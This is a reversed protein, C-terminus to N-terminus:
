GALTCEPLDVRSGIPDRELLAAITGPDQTMAFARRGDDLLCVLHGINPEGSRDYSVTYTEVVARGTYDEAIERAPLADVEAQVDHHAYRERPERASLVVAAHKTLYWGTATALGSAGPDARLREHLTALSHMVYNSGPGGAFTLGGTVTPAPHPEELEIGLETAAVQVASPFCSYIDRYAIDDVTMGTHGLLARGIARIAPSRHLEARNGVYWHDNAAATGHVFVWNERPIGAREAAAASCLVVASAQNVYINAITLKRYPFAVMRNNAPDAIEEASTGATNWAHPNTTAVEAFRAWLRAIWRQHDEVDRGAAARLANEFLPYFHVPLRLEAAEEAPHNAHKDSGLTRTPGPGDETVQGNDIQGQQLARVAECGALLATDVEGDRIQQCADALLDLPSTGSARTTVTERPKAGLEDALERGPDSPRWTLCDAVGVLQIDDRLGDTGAGTDALADRAASSILDPISITGTADTAGVQGAGVLVPTTPDLTSM